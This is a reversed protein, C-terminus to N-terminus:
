LTLNGTWSTKASWIPGSVGYARRPQVYTVLLESSCELHVSVNGSFDLCSARLENLDNTFDTPIGLPTRTSRQLTRLPTSNMM